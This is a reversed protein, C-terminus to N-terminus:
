LQYTVIIVFEGMSIRGIRYSPEANNSMRNTEYLAKISKIRPDINKALLHLMENHIRRAEKLSIFPYKGLSIGLQKSKWSFRFYWVKTGRPSVHINLGGFDSLTYPQHKAKLQTLTTNTLLM